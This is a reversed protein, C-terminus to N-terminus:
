IRVPPKLDQNWCSPGLSSVDTHGALRDYAEALEELSLPDREPRLGLGLLRRFIGSAVKPALGLKEAEKESLFEALSRAEIFQSCASYLVLEPAILSIFVWICKERVLGWFGAGRKPLNLHLATYVCAFLTLICSYLISSTGRM